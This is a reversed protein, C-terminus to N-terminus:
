VGRTLKIILFAILAYVINGILLVTIEKKLNENGFLYGYVAKFFNNSITALLICFVATSLEVQGKFHMNALAITIPDVDIVGSTLSLLVLGKEGFHANLYKGLVSVAVYVTTFELIEIWSLPNRM